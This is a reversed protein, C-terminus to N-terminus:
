EGLEQDVRQLWREAVFGMTAIIAVFVVFVGAIIGIGILTEQVAQNM